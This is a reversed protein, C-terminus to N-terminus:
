GQQDEQSGADFGEGSASAESSTDANNGVREDAMDRGQQVQEDFRGGTVSSAAESARDLGQDSLGEVQDGHEEMAKQAQEKADDFMSM